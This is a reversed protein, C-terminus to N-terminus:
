ARVGAFGHRRRVALFTASALVIIALMSAAGLGADRWDIGNSAAFPTALAVPASAVATQGSQGASHESITENTAGSRHILNYAWPDLPGYRGTASAVATQRNQGASHESIVENGAGSRHVVNYAWPDLSGNGSAPSSAAQATPVAFAGTAVLLAIGKALRRTTTTMLNM